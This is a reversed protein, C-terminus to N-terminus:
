LSCGDRLPVCQLAHAAASTACRRTGANTRFAEYRVCHSRLLLGVGQACGLADGLHDILTADRLAFCSRASRTPGASATSGCLEGDAELVSATRAWEVRSQWCGSPSIGSGTLRYGATLGRERALTKSTGLGRISRPDAFVAHNVPM